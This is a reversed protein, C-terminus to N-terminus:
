AARGGRGDGIPLRMTARTGGLPSRSFELTGGHAQCVRLAFPIGLGTGPTKTTPGPGTSAQGPVFAIGPGQDDIHIDTTAATQEVQMRVTAGALSAELANVLLGHLAQELLNRDADVIRGSGTQTTIEIERLEAQPRAMDALAHLLADADLAM